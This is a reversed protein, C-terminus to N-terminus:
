VATISKLKSMRGILAADLTEIIGQPMMDDVCIVFKGYNEPILMQAESIKQDLVDMLVRELTILVERLITEDVDDTGAAFVIMDGIAQHVIIVDEIILCGPTSSIRGWNPNTLKFLKDEFLSKM